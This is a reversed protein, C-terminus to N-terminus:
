DLRFVIPVIVESQVARGDERAAYFGLKDLVCQAAADLRPFGTSEAVRWSVVRGGTGITVALKLLGEENDRRAGAPYCARIVAAFGVGRGQLSAPKWDAAVRASSMGGDQPPVGADVPLSGGDEPPFVPIPVIPEEVVQGLPQPPLVKDPPVLVPSEPRPPLLNVPGPPRNQVPFLFVQDNLVLLLVAFHLGIIATLVAARRSGGASYVQTM